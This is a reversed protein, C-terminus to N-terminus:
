IKIAAAAMVEFDTADGDQMQRENYGKIFAACESISGMFYAQEEIAVVFSGRSLEKNASM